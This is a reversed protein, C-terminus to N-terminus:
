RLREWCKTFAGALKIASGIPLGIRTGEGVKTDHDTAIMFIGFRSGFLTVGFAACDRKVM